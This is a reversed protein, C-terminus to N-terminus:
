FSSPRFCEHSRVRLIRFRLRATRRWALVHQWLSPRLGKCPVVSLCCCCCIFSFKQHVCETKKTGVEGFVRLRSLALVTRFRRSLSLFLSFLPSPCCAPTGEALRHGRWDLTEIETEQQPFASPGTTKMRAGREECSELNELESRPSSNALSLKQQHSM